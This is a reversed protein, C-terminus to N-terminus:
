KLFVYPNLFQREWFMNKEIDSLQAVNCTEDWYKRITNTQDDIITQADTESLLFHHAATLCSALQSRRDQGTILM